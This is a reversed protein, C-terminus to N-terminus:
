PMEAKNVLWREILKKAIFETHGCVRCIYYILPLNSPAANTNSLEASGVPLLGMVQDDNGYVWKNSNCRPCNPNTWKARTFEQIQAFTLAMIRSRLRFRSQQALRKLLTGM